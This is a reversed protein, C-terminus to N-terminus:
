HQLNWLHLGQGRPRERPCMKYDKAKAEFTLDKAKAEFGWTRSFQGTGPEPVASNKIGNFDQQFVGSVKRFIQSSKKQKGCNSIALFFKNNNNNILLPALLDAETLYLGDVCQTPRM